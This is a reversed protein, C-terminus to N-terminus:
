SAVGMVQALEVIEAPLERKLWQTGYRYGCTPCPAGISDQFIEADFTAPQIDREVEARLLKKWKRGDLSRGLNDRSRLTEVDFM